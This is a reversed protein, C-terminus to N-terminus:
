SVVGPPPAVLTVTFGLAQLQAKLVAVKARLRHPPPPVTHPERYDVGDRLIHFICGLLSRALAVAAKKPGLRALRRFKAQWFTGKTNKAAMAAQVLITRLYKNGKRTPAGKAIGASENSGPCIGAWSALHKSSDFVAMDTGSEALIAAAAIDDIGPIQVLRKLETRMPTTLREIDREIADIDSATRDLQSLLQSLVVVTSPSLQGQVARFLAPVKKRLTGRALKEIDDHSLPRGAIMADLLARGTVGLADACVTGLKIGGSEMAKLIRNKYRTQDATLKTRHRTLTRLEQLQPSPLFSPSVLGYMVLKSLWQSDSVDTKRGPVKKVHLPNVLWLVVKPFNSQIARAVPQWYVGTSELGAVEVGQQELWQSMAVLGDHFTEFTRTEVVDTQKPRRARVTVVVTDRHVDLGAAVEFMRDM